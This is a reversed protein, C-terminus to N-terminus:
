EPIREGEQRAMWKAADGMAEVITDGDFANVVGVIGTADRPPLTITKDGGFACASLTIVEVRVPELPMGHGIVGGNGNELVPFRIRIKYETVQEM